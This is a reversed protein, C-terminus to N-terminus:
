KGLLKVMAKEADSQKKQEKQFSYLIAILGLAAVLIQYTATGPVPFGKAIGVAAPILNLILPVAGLVLVLLGVIFLVFKHKM